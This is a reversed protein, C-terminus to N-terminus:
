RQLNEDIAEQFVALTHQAAKDFSFLSARNIARASLDAHLIDDTLLQALGAAISNVDFPNILVAADGAVEPLSSINSTLAPVGYSMAELLPLGFGEYLSPMALIHAHSYLTSLQKDSVFGIFRVSSDLKYSRVIHQVNVNGWGKGGVIVLLYLNRVEQNLNAYAQLLRELNKRPEITGVFLVYPRDIDILSLEIFDQPEPLRAIGPWVVRVRSAVSPYQSSVDKGTSESIVIVRDAKNVAKEMLIKDAIRRLPQMTNSAHKWVLDHITVVRAIRKPLFFPLRHAGGWFVDIEDRSARFPILTQLLFNRALRNFDAVLPSVFGSIPASYLYLEAGHNQLAAVTNAIYRGIGTIKGSLLSIDIGIRM